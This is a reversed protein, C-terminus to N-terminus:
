VIENVVNMAVEAIMAVKMKSLIGNGHMIVTRIGSVNCILREWQGPEKYHKNDPM